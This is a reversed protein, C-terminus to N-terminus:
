NLLHYFGDIVRFQEKNRIFYLNCQEVTYFVICSMVYLMTGEVDKLANEILIAEGKSSDYLGSSWEYTRDEDMYDIDSTYNYIRKIGHLTAEERSFRVGRSKIYYRDFTVMPEEINRM